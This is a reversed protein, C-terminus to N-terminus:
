PAGTPDSEIAQSEDSPNEVIVASRVIDQLEDIGMAMARVWKMEGTRLTHSEPTQPVAQRPATAPWMTAGRTNCIQIRGPDLQLIIDRDDYFQSRLRTQFLAASTGDFLQFVLAEIDTGAIEIVEPRAAGKLFRTDYVTMEFRM